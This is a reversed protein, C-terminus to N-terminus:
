IFFSTLIKQKKMLKKKSSNYKLLNVKFDNKLNNLHILLNSGIFGSSGTVLVNRKKQM